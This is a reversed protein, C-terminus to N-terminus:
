AVEFYKSDPGGCALDILEQTHGAIVLSPCGALVEALEPPPNYKRWDRIGKVNEINGTEKLM